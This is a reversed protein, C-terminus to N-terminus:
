ACDIITGDTLFESYVAMREYVNECTILFCAFSGDRMLVYFADPLKVEGVIGREIM